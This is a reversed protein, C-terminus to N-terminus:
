STPGRHRLHHVRVLQRHPRLRYDGRRRDDARRVQAPGGADRPLLGGAPRDRRGRGDGARRHLGGGDGPRRGPDDGGAEARVWASFARESMGPEANRWHHPTETHLVPPLPLDFATHISPLCGTLSASAVTVAGHYARKRSIIKKKEPRGRLNNYYWVLKVNTDNADSGSNGFFIKSMNDPVLRLLRDALRIPAETGMSFFSHYYALDNAQATIADVVERHGWGINVCWLGAMGDIYQKGDTNTLRM